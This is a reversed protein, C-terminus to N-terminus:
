YVTYKPARKELFANVAEARDPSFEMRECLEPECIYLDGFNPAAAADVM